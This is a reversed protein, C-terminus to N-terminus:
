VGFKKKVALDHAQIYNVAFASWDAMSSLRKAEIKNSVRDQASLNAFKYMFDALDNIIEDDTRNTRKLVFIGPNKKSKKKMIFRGFGALDTTVSSVGLAAAELPTYGWPEYFSPFVGLHSGSMAEYYTLDLLGDAGTLYIPYFIMKVRDDEHNDLELALMSKVILDNEDYLDHTALSPNGKRAIKMIKKKMAYLFDENFINKPELEKKAMISYLINQKILPTEAELEEKLDIFLTKSELLEPKISRINGPVWIFAVITKKSKDKKLKVNLKDLSKIYIDIGKDRFEYRGALFFILTDKIDFPYYPFFYYLLFEKIQDRNKRHNISAQEFTPFKSLDLGNPLIVDANRKLIFGAELDTVESVTTFIDALQAANKEILHKSEAYYSYAEKDVDITELICKKTKPDICYLDINGAAMARGLVTAHTTFITAVDVNNNKLYIVAAGSLWEHFQAVVKKDSFAYKKIEKIILGVAHSWVLPENYDGSARLSDIKNSEWLQKKIENLKVMYNEFDVLIVKPESDILWKGFHLIIGLKKLEESVNKLEKPAPYEEFNGATKNAFYPGILICEHNHAYYKQIHPSKSSLVTNIGGVKNCVEWSVEILVDAKPNLM